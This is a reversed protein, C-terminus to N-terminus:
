SSRVVLDLQPTGIFETWQEGVRVNEELGIYGYGPVPVGLEVAYVQGAELPYNPTEGYREWAPGLIGGGDHARRGLHHGTAHMYEPYGAELIIQRAAADVAKGPVGPKMEGVAVQIAHLVTRFARKVEDLPTREDSRLFYVMRQIDSCYGDQQVGFDFHVLHGPEIRLDTPGSHGVPSDPGTNVAPCGAPNWAPGVGYEALLEHMFAGVQRETMGPQMFDFTRQYIKNTTDVAATIRALEGATKRGRLARIIKEASVLRGAFPTGELYGVLTQYMGHRLGDAEVDDCSYNLAIQDPSLRELVELLHPRITQDYPVVTTYIGAREVAEADFRGVIAVREGTKTLLLASQWTLDGPGFIVPMVPDGGSVTERVFTLWLDINLEQLIGIAQLVKEHVLPSM